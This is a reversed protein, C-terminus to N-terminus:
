KTARAIKTPKPLAKILFKRYKDFADRGEYTLSVLTRPIRNLYNKHVEVYSSQQLKKLCISLNGKSLGTKGALTVFDMKDDTYLSIMISLRAPEHIVRDLEFTGQKDKTPENNM